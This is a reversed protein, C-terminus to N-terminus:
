LIATIIWPLFVIISILRVTHMMAVKVVDAGVEEALPVVQMLGAPMTALLCTVSDWGALRNLVFSLTLCLLMLTVTPLFLPLFLEGLAVIIDHTMSRAMVAGLAMQCLSGLHPTVPCARGSPAVVLAAGAMSGIMAGAPVGLHEFCWGGTLAAAAMLAYLGANFRGQTGYVPTPATRNGVPLGQTRLHRSWGRAIWPIVMVSVILRFLQIFTVTVANAGLAMAFVAMEMVGGAASGILATNLPLDSWAHLVFGSLLSAGMMWVATVLAPVPLERLALIVTRDFRRGLTVGLGVKALFSVTVLSLDVPYLYFYNLAGAATLAGLFAPTPFRLFRLVVFGACCVGALLAADVVM